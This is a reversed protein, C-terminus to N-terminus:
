FDSVPVVMRYYKSGRFARLMLYQGQPSFTPEWLGDFEEKYPRGDLLITYKRGRKVLAAAHGSSPSFIPAWAMDYEGPWLRDDVM